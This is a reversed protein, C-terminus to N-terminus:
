RGVHGVPRCHEEPDGGVGGQLLLVCPRALCLRIVLQKQLRQLRQEDVTEILEHVLAAATTFRVKLDKEL